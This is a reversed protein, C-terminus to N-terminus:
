QDMAGSTGTRDWLRSQRSVARLAALVRATDRKGLTFLRRRAVPRGLATEVLPCVQRWGLSGVLVALEARTPGLEADTRARAKAIAYARREAPTYRM